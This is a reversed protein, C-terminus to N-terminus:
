GPGHLPPRPHARHLQPEQQGLAGCPVLLPREKGRRHPEQARQLPGHRDAARVPHRGSEVFGGGQRVRGCEAAREAGSVCLLARSPLSSSPSTLKARHADSPPAPTLHSLSVEPALYQPTGCLTKMTSGEGIMRSLGFDSLKIADSDPSVLLVNEPKLDRHVINHSHLYSTADLLQEFILASRGEPFGRGNQAIIKDFLDGGTVLELVLYLFKDTDYVDHIAIIHPHNLKQLIKVEDMLAEGRKSGHNLAFKKKEIIKMAYQRGTDREVCLKVVAFAGTGLNDSVEYKDFPGGSREEEEAERRRQTQAHHHHIHYSIKESQNRILLIESGNAVRVRKGKEAKKGDVWTGNTSHDTLFTLHTDPLHTLTCHVGSIAAHKVQLHCSSKRGIHVELDHLTRSPHESNTCM